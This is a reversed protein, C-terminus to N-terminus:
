DRGWCLLRGGIRNKRGVHWSLFVHLYRGDRGYMADGQVVVNFVNALLVLLLHVPKKSAFAGDASAFLLQPEAENLGVIRQALFVLVAGSRQM